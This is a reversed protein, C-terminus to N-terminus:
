KQKGGQHNKDSGDSGGGSSDSHQGISNIFQGIAGELSFASQTQRITDGNHLIKDSPGLAIAVYKGGIIGSSLVSAIADADIAVGQNIFLALHARNNLLSAGQVKGIQVGAIDVDDGSKLGGIDDFDAYLVYGPQPLISINGLRFSLIGLAAIGLLAFM